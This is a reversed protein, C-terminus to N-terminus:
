SGIYGSSIRAAMGIAIKSAANERVQWMSKTRRFGTYGRRRFLEGM